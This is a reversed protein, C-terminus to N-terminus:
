ALLIGSHCLVGLNDPKALKEALSMGEIKGSQLHTHVGLGSALVPVGIPQGTFREGGLGPPGPLIRELLNPGFKAIAQFEMWSELGLGEELIELSSKRALKGVALEARELSLDLRPSGDLPGGLLDEEILNVRGALQAGGIERAHVVQVDGEPTLREIV